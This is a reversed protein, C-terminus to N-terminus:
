QMHLWKRQNESSIEKTTDRIYEKGQNRKKKRISKLENVKRPCKRALNQDMSEVKVAEM